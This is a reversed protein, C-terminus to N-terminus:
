YFSLINKSPFLLQIHLGTFMKNLVLMTNHISYPLKFSMSMNNNNKKQPRELKKRKRKNENQIFEIENLMERTLLRGGVDVTSRLKEKKTSPPLTLIETRVEERVKLWTTDYEIEVDCGGEQFLRLRKLMKSLNPPYIGSSEFGKKSNACSIGAVWSKCVMDIANQKSINSEGTEILLEQINATIKKKFSSFVCIDLPQILHTANAPLLVMLIQFQQCLNFIGSSIHSGYGDVVLVVPRKTTPPINEDLHNIWKAFVAENIFGSETTTVKANEITCRKLINKIVRKGPLIFVPPTIDGSGSSTAVISLHFNASICKSWVNKSGKVAIVKKKKERTQFGTEDM